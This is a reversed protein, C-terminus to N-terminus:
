GRTAEKTESGASIAPATMSPERLRQGPMPPVPFGGAYPDIEDAVVPHAAAEKREARRDWVWGAVLALLASLAPRM